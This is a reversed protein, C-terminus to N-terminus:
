QNAGRPGMSAVYLKVFYDVFTGPEGVTAPPTYDTVVANDGAGLATVDTAARAAPLTHEFVNNLEFMVDMKGDKGGNPEWLIPEELVLINDMEPEGKQTAQHETINNYQEADPLLDWTPGGTNQASGPVDSPNGLFLINDNDLRLTVSMYMDLANMLYSDTFPTPRVAIGVIKVREGKNTTRAELINTDAYSANHIAPLTHGDVPKGLEYGFAFRKQPVFIVSGGALDNEVCEFRVRSYYYKSLDVRQSGLAEMQIQRRVAAPVKAAEKAAAIQAAQNRTVAKRM